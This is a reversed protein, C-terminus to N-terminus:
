RTGHGVQAAGDPNADSPILMCMFGAGIALLALPIRQETVDGIVTDIRRERTLLETLSWTRDPLGLKMSYKM